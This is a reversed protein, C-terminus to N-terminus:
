LWHNIIYWHSLVTNIFQLLVDAHCLLRVVAEIEPTGPIAGTDATASARQARRMVCTSSALTGPSQVRPEDNETIYHEAAYTHHLRRSTEARPALTAPRSFRVRAIYGSPLGAACRIRTETCACACTRIIM